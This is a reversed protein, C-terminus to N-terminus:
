VGAAALLRAANAEFTRPAVAARAQDAAAQRQTPHALAWRIQDGLEEPGSFTPLMPLLEDGEPRADRAFWTGCAALEVERPGMSWGAALEPRDAERRYLNMSTRASRYVGATDVNDVCEDIDHGIFPRIPSSDAIGRWNGGIVVDIGTWDVAELFTRRSGFGTGIFAFDCTRTGDGPHHVAPDYAHPLYRARPFRDLNTPDNLLNLDAHEARELQRDDEYPSETHVIVVRHGRHRMLDLVAAPVFFASIVVVVHPWWEYCANKLSDAALSIAQADDFPAVYRGRRKLRAEAFFTLRDGLNFDLVTCGNARLGGLIGRHVDAVSFSPGPHVILARTM